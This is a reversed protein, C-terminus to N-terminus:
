NKKEVFSLMNHVTLFLFIQIVYLNQSVQILKEGAMSGSIDLVFLINKAVPDLGTPAFFHVFYGDVM